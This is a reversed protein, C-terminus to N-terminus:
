KPGFKKTLKKNIKTSNNNQIDKNNETKHNSGISKNNKKKKYIKCYAVITVILIVGIFIYAFTNLVSIRGPDESILLISEIIRYVIYFSSIIQIIMLFSQIRRDRIEGLNKTIIEITEKIHQIRQRAVNLISDVENNIVVISDNCIIDFFSPLKGILGWKHKIREVLGSSRILKKQEDFLKLNIKHLERSYEYLIDLNLKLSKVDELLPDELIKKQEENEELGDILNQIEKRCGREVQHTIVSVLILDFLYVNDISEKYLIYSCHPFGREIKVINGHISRIKNKIGILKLKELDEDDGNILWIIPRYDSKIFIKDTYQKIKENAELLKNLIEIQFDPTNNPQENLLRIIEEKFEFICCFSYPYQFHIPLHEIFIGKVQILDLNKLKIEKKEDNTLNKLYLPIKDIFDTIEIRKFNPYNWLKLSRDDVKKKDFQFKEFNIKLKQTVLKYFDQSKQEPIYRFIMLKISKIAM